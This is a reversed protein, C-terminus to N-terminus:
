RSPPDDSEAAAEELDADMREDPTHGETGEGDEDMEDRVEEKTEDDDGSLKLFPITSDINNITNRLSLLHENTAALSQEVEGLDREVSALSDDIGQLRDLSGLKGLLEDLQNSITDMQDNVRVINTRIEDVICGPMLLACLLLAAAATRRATRPM